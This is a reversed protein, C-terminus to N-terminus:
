FGRARGPIGGLGPPPWAPHGRRAPGGRHQEHGPDHHERDVQAGRDGAQWRDEGLQGGGQVQGVARDGNQGRNRHDTEPQEGAQAARQAAAEALFPHQQGRQQQQRRPV